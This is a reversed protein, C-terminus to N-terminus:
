YRKQRNKDKKNITETQVSREAQGNGHPYMPRSYTAIFQYSEAFTKYEQSTFLGQWSIKAGKEAEPHCWQKLTHSITRSCAVNNPHLESMTRCKRVHTVTHSVHSQTLCQTVAQSMARCEIVTHSMTRSHAINNTPARYQTVTHLMTCSHPVNHSATRSPEVTPSQIRCQAVNNSLTQCQLVTCWQVVTHSM